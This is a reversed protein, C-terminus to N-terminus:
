APVFLRRKGPGADRELAGVLEVGVTADRAGADRLAGAVRTAVASRLGGGDADEPPVVLGTRADGANRVQYEAVGAVAALPGRVTLPHVRVRGGAAAPLDLLEDARGDIAALRVFTRGCACPARDVRVLDTIEYRIVPLTRSGLATLLIRDEQAEIVYEDEFVHIGAHAHCDVGVIGAETIGYLDHLEPSWAARIAETMEATRVESSTSVTAPRIALRGALTEQAALAILSSYGSLVHPDFAELAARQEAIPRRPDLRLIRHLGVDVTSAIQATMHTPTTAVLLAIRRRPLTPRMGTMASHRLFGAILGNWEDEDYVFVGRRGTSGGTAMVHFRGDLLAAADPGDLHAELRDLTLGPVTLADDYREMLEAKTLPPLDELRAGPDINAYRERYLPSHARAHAVLANVRGRQFAELRERSWTEREAAARATRQARLVFRLGSM